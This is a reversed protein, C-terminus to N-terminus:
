PVRVDESVRVEELMVISPDSAMMVTPSMMVMRSEVFTGSLCSKKEHGVSKRVSACAIM